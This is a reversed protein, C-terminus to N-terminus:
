VLILRKSRHCWIGLLRFVFTSWFTGSLWVVALIACGELASRHVQEVGLLLAWGHVLLLAAALLVVMLGPGGLRYALDAVALPNLDRLRRRDTLSILAFVQYAIAVMGLEGLVFGDGVGMDGCDLWYALAIAAFLVPGSAFGALWRLASLAMTVLPNGSWLLYQTEGQVASILVLDFFSCPLGIILLQLVVWSVVVGGRTWPDEAPEALVRPLLAAVLATVLTMIVALGGCLPWARVPYQLCQYWFEELHREKIPPRREARTSLLRVIYASVKRPEVVPRPPRAPRPPVTAVQAPAAKDPPLFPSRDSPTYAPVADPARPNLSPIGVLSGCRPCITLRTAMEDRAKLRKGCSCAFKISM